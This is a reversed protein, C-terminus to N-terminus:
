KKLLYYNEKFAQVLDGNDQGVQWCMLGALKKDQVYKAKWYIAEPDDYTIFLGTESDYIYPVKCEDDWYRKCTETQKDVYNTKITGYRLSTDLYTATTGLGSSNTFQRGFFGSGIIMKSYPVGYARIQEVSSSTAYLTGSKSSPYLATHHTTRVHSHLEYTMLNVYDMTKITTSLTFRDIAGLLIACTVLHNPNNAKVKTYIANMMYVFGEKEDKGNPYEWDIDVGDLDYKNIMRVIEDAFKDCAEKSKAISAFTETTRFSPIVYAGREHVKALSTRVFESGVEGLNTVEGKSNFNAFALYYVDFTSLLLDKSAPYDSFVYAACVGASLDMNKRPIIYDYTVNKEVSDCTVKATLTCYQKVFTQNVNGLISIISSDSTQWTVTTGLDSEGAFFVINNFDGDKYNDNLINITHEIKGEATIDSKKMWLARIVTDNTINNLPKDWGAFLSDEKDLLIPAKITGMYPVSFTEEYQNYVDDKIVVNYYNIDFIASVTIDEYIFSFDKDWEKFTYGTKSAVPAIAAKGMEVRQKEIETGDDNLFTVMKYGDGIEAYKAKLTVALQPMFNEDIKSGNYYWGIFMFGDKTALPLSGIKDGYYVVINEIENGGDTDFKVNIKKREEYYATLYTEEEIVKPFTVKKDNFSDIWYKFTNGEKYPKVPEDLLGDIDIVQPAIYEGGLTDFYVVTQVEEDYEELWVAKLTIDSYVESSVDFEYNDLTWTVFTYGDRVPAPLYAVTSKEVKLPEIIEGGDMDFTITVYDKDDKPDKEKCSCLVFLTFIVLAILKITKKM